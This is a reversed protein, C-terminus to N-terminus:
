TLLSSNHLIIVIIEYKSKVFYPKSYVPHNYTRMKPLAFMKSAFAPIGSIEAIYTAGNTKLFDNPKSALFKHVKASPEKEFTMIITRPTKDLSHLIGHQDVLKMPSMTDGVKYESGIAFASLCLLMIIKRM